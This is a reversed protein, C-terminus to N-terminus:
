DTRELICNCIRQEQKMTRLAYNLAELSDTSCHAFIALSKCHDDDEQTLNCSASGHEVQAGEQKGAQHDHQHADITQSALHSEVHISGVHPEFMTLAM